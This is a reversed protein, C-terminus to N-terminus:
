EFSRLGSVTRQTKMTIKGEWRNCDMQVSAKTYERVFVGSSGVEQCGDDLPEGYDADLAAPRSYSMGCGQWGYGIWAYQGRVLLFTALDQMLAPLTGNATLPQHHSVRTFGFFLALRHLKNPCADRLWSTCDTRPDTQNRNPATQPAGACSHTANPAYACNLLQWNYARAGLIKRQAAAM